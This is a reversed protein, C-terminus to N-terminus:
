YVGLIMRNGHCDEAYQTRPQNLPNEAWCGSSPSPQCDTLNSTRCCTLQVYDGSVTTLVTPSAVSQTHWTGSVCYYGSRTAMDIGGVAYAIVWGSNVRFTRQPQTDPNPNAPTTPDSGQATCHNEICRNNSCDSNSRCIQNLGCLQCTGSGCDVDSENGNKYGDPCTTSPTPNNTVCRGITNCNNSACDFSSRCVYGLQCLQCTNQGCDVDSENGDRVNNPCISTVTSSTDEFIYPGPNFDACGIVFLCGIFAIFRTM